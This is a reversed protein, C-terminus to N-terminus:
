EQLRVPELYQERYTEFPMTDAALNRNDSTRLRGSHSQKTDLM